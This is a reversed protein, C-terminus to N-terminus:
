IAALPLALEMMTTFAKERESATTAEGTVINDSVTFIGLAEVGAEAATAYLGASEMEVALVGMAAWRQNVDDQYNYFVDSSLVNGVHTTIGAEKARTRVDEILRYSAIPAYVGPLNYQSLFNSDTCAAQGIVVDYLNLDKQLSGCSGVRVLKKVGFDHILEWAYLSISPIGMGSGMVSVEKGQYTGTYGFANRVSNFQVADDLYTEAIFKARLPDGPLLITEAIPVGNPNIHPTSQRGM